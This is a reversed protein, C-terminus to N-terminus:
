PRTRGRRDAILALTAVLAFVGAVVAHALAVRPADVAVALLALATWVISATAFGTSLTM